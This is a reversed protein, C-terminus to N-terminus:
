ESETIADPIFLNEGGIKYDGIIKQCEPSVIWKIFAIAGIYNVHEFRAPSVAMIGYYNDLIPDGSFQVRIDIKDKLALYTGRDTLTYAEMENAMTIVAGMGQGAEIYWQGTPQLNSTKWLALEKMHTGSNDGRSIFKSESALIKKLAFGVNDASKIKAPDSDPGLIVFDNHMVDQRNVGYGDNVFVYEKERAHVFVGDVDGNEGLKLAKGTGVAIIEVSYGSSEEFPPIIIDLLGSNDVSTTTSFKVEKNEEGIMIGCIVVLLILLFMNIKNM